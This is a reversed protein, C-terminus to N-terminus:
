DCNGCSQPREDKVIPEKVSCSGCDSPEDKVITQSKMDCGNSCADQTVRAPENAQRAEPRVVETDRHDCGGGSCASAPLAAFMAASAIIAACIITKMIEGGHMAGPVALPLAMLRGFWPLLRSRAINGPSCGTRCAIHAYLAGSKLLAHASQALTQRM